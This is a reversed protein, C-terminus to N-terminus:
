KLNVTAAQQIEKDGTESNGIYAVWKCNEPVWGEKITYIFTREYVRGASKTPLDKMIETGGPITLIDRLVHEHHYDATFSTDNEQVDVVDNEVLALTLKQRKAVDATYAAHVKIIAQRSTANYNSTITLNATPAVNLRTDVLTTWFSKDFYPTGGFLPSTQNIVRDIGATPTASLTGYISQSLETGAETRNDHVTKFGPKDVPYAQVFGFVQIGVVAIRGPHNSQITALVEHGLPCPPCSVGTFEEILVMRSQPTEVPATYTTDSLTGGGGLIVGSNGKEKCSTLTIVLAGAVVATISLFKKIM